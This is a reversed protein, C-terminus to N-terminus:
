SSIKTITSISKTYPSTKLIPIAMSVVLYQWYDLIKSRRIELRLKKTIHAQLANLNCLLLWYRFMPVKEVDLHYEIEPALISM